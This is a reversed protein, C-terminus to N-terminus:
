VKGLRDIAGATQLVEVVKQAQEATVTREEQHTEEYVMGTFLSLNLIGFKVGTEDGIEKQLTAAFEAFSENAMVHLVNIDRDEVREGDQNVCLRLGRSVKQRGKKDQSFYGNHIKSVDASFRERIPAYKERAILERYCAEFM